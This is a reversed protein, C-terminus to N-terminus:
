IKVLKMQTIKGVKKAKKFQGGKLLNSILKNPGLSPDLSDDFVVSSDETLHKEWCDFDRKVGEYTHDGDIWLLGIKKDWNPSIKESSLNILRVVKYCDSMLMARYFEGRDQSGFQGGLIGTFTEHPDIAFVPVQNGDMSGRGLAVTARGRYSGVEVICGDKVKKALEYLLVAEDYTIMGTTQDFFKKLNLGFFSNNATKRNESKGIFLNLIKKILASM